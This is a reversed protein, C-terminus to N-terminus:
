RFFSAVDLFTQGGHGSMMQRRLQDSGDSAPAREDVEWVYGQAMTIAVRNISIGSEIAAVKQQTEREQAELVRRLTNPLKDKRQLRRKFDALRLLHKQTASLQAEFQTIQNEMAARMLGVVDEHQFDIDSGLIGALHGSLLMLAQADENVPGDDVGAKDYKARRLPDRLVTLAQSVKHFTAPDGGKDPHHKKAAERGASAIEEATADPAVGIVDYLDM